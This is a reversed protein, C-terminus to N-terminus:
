RGYFDRDRQATDQRGRLGARIGGSRAASPGLAKLRSERKPQEPLGAGGVTFGEGIFPKLHDIAMSTTDVQDDFAANPFALHEKEWEERWDADVPLFVRLAEFLPTAARFRLVKDARPVKVATIPLRTDRRLEQVVAQGSSADEVVIINPEHLKYQSVMAKKLEPFEVRERWVDLVYLGRRGLGWTAGVSYSRRQQDKTKGAEDEKAGTDWLQVKYGIDPPEDYYQLWERQLIRGTPPAPRQDYLAAWFYSGLVQKTALLTKEDYREPWLAEGEARGLPDDPGALGPLVLEVWEEEDGALIRGALDDEHWRTMILVVVGDPELRPYATSRWWDWIRERYTPSEAEEWNKVPDDIVLLNAGRGTIPGGVGATTMGGQHRALDWRNAASSEQSVRVDWLAPGWEELETRAKRGWTAAFDAEYSSLIVRDEPFTGLWWAPFYHSILESKGHRPPMMVVLRRFKRRALGVLGRNLLRLHDALEWRGGSAVM